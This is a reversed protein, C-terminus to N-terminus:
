GDQLWGVLLLLVYGCFQACTLCSYCSTTWFKIKKQLRQWCEQMPCGGKGGAGRWCQQTLQGFILGESVEKIQHWGQFFLKLKLKQFFDSYSARSFPRHSAKYFIWLVEINSFTDASLIVVPLKQSASAFFFSSAINPFPKRAARM